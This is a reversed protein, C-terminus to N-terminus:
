VTGRGVACMTSASHGLCLGRHTAVVRGGGESAGRARGMAVLRVHAGHSFGTGKKPRDKSPLRRRAPPVPQPQARCSGWTVSAPTPRRSWGRHQSRVPRHAEVVARKQQTQRSACRAVPPAAVFHKRCRAKSSYPAPKAPPAARSPPPPFLRRPSPHAEPLPARRLM